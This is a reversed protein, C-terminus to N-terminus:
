AEANAHYTREAGQSRVKVLEEREDQKATTMISAFIEIFVCGLSFVDAPFGRSEQAAVEPAAYLRTFPTPSDTNSDDACKYARAIGFDAVYVELEFFGDRILVNKPKIDMHKVNNNHMYQIANSLCGVFTSLTAADTKAIESRGEFLEDMYEELNWEAAPYLLIVLDKKLLYTGVLRVIHRHQLRQLHEVETVAEEKTLRRNCRITKRALDIRRCRVRDVFGSAGYGLNGNSVLPVAAAEHPQYEVHQGRGSWDLAEEPSLIMGRARL